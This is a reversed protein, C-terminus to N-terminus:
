NLMNILDEATPMKGTVSRSYILEDKFFVDFSPSGSFSSSLMNTLSYVMLTTKFKNTHM